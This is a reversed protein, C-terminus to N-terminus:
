GNEIEKIKYFVKLLKLKELDDVIYQIIGAVINLPALTNPETSIM